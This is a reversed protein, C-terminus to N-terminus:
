KADILTEDEGFMTFMIWCFELWKDLKYENPAQLHHPTTKNEFRACPSSDVCLQGAASTKQVSEVFQAWRDTDAILRRVCKRPSNEVRQLFETMQVNYDRANYM